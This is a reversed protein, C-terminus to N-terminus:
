IASVNLSTVSIDDNTGDGAIRFKYKWNKKLFAPVSFTLSTSVSIFLTSLEFRVESGEQVFTGTDKDIFLALNYAASGGVKKASLTCTVNGLVSTENLMEFGNDGSQQSRGSKSSDFTATGAIDSYVGNSISTLPPTSNNYTLVASQYSDPANSNGRLDWRIDTSSIGNITGNGDIDSNDKIYGFGNASINGSNSLADILVNGPSTRFENGEILPKDITAGTIDLLTGAFSNVRNNAFILDEIAGTVTLGTPGTINTIFQKSSEFYNLNDVSGFSVCNKYNMNQATIFSFLGTKKLSFFSGNPCDLGLGVGGLTLGISDGEIMAGVTDSRFEDVLNGNGLLSASAGTAVKFARSGLDVAGDAAFKDGNEIYVFDDDYNPFDTINRIAKVGASTGGTEIATGGSIIKFVQRGDAAVVEILSGVWDPDSTFRSESFYGTALIDSLTDGNGPSYAYKDFIGRSQNFQRDLKKQVFTM